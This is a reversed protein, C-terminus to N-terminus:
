AYNNTRTKPVPSSTDHVNTSSTIDLDSLHVGLNVTASSRTPIFTPARQQRAIQARVEHVIVM